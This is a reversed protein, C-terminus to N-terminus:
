LETEKSEDGGAFLDDEIRAIKEGVELMLEQLLHRDFGIRDRSAEDLVYALGDHGVGFGLTMCASDACHVIDVLPDENNEEPHHHQRIAMELREPLGWLKALDGGVECHDFGFVQQEYLQNEEVGESEDFAALMGEASLLQDMALKGCDRLLAATFAIKPEVLGTKVALWEAAVAGGVSGLWAEEGELGYGAGRDKFLRHGQLAVAIRYLEKFGVRTIADQVSSIHQGAGLAASNARRIVAMSLGRDLLVDRELEESGIKDNDLAGILRVLTVPLPPLDEITRLKDALSDM